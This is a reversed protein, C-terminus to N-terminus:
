RPLIVGVISHGKSDVLRDTNVSRDMCIETTALLGICENFSSLLNLLAATARRQVSCWLMQYRTAYHTIM